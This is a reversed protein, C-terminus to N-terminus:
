NKKFEQAFLRSFDGNFDELFHHTDLVDDVTVVEADRFKNRESKTLDTIPEPLRGEKVVAAVLAQTRCASCSAKLYWLDQHHGLISINNVEYRGGCVGCKIRAILRKILSEEVVAAEMGGWDSLSELRLNVSILIM